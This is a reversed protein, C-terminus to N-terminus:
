SEPEKGNWLRVACLGKGITEGAGIQLFLPLKKRLYGLVDAAKMDAKKDSRSDEALVLSYFITEAPLFEEYFLAGTKVTKTEYNLGVRATVETAHRVFHTFDDDHLVALHQKLRENGEPSAKALWEALRKVDDGAKCRFDFEELVMKNTDLLLPSGPVCAAEGNAVEPSSLGDPLKALRLDRQLRSLVAPCTVWAFVGRMSRVPFALIRADTLALAGAHDPADGTEPGFVVTLKGDNAGNGGQGTAQRRCAERLVGKISSGPITPWQTHRERQVPLDVVGLATGSGPHLGTLAHIFLLASEPM